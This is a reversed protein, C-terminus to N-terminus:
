RGDCLGVYYPWYSKSPVVQISLVFVYAIIELPSRCMSVDSNTSWCLSVRMLESQMECLVLVRPFLIFGIIREGTIPQNYPLSPKKAKTLCGTLSFSYESNLGTLVGSLFQGQTVDKVYPPTPYICVYMLETHVTSVANLINWSHNGIPIYPSFSDLSYTSYVFVRHHHHHHNM